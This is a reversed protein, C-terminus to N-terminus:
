IVFTSPPAAPSWFFGQEEIERHFADLDSQSAALTENRGVVVLVHWRVEGDFVQVIRCLRPSEPIWEIKMGVMFRTAAQAVATILPATVEGYEITANRLSQRRLLQSLLYDGFELTRALDAHREIDYRSHTNM